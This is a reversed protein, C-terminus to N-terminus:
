IELLDTPWVFIKCVQKDDLAGLGHKNKTTLQIFKKLHIM